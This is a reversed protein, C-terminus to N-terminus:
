QGLSGAVYGAVRRANAMLTLTLPKSPLCPFTAGDALFVGRTGHLRCTADVTLDRPDATMPLMGGYHLSSGPGPDVRGLPLCGLKRIYGLLRKEREAHRRAIERDQRYSLEFRGGPHEETPVLRCEKGAAPADEHEIVLILLAGVFARVLRAAQRVPLRSEKVLKHLLLSGYVHMEGYVPGASRRDPDFFFGAQTLSHRRTAPAKGLWSLHMCPVYIHPNSLLPVPAGFADM